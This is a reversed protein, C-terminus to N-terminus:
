AVVEVKLGLEDMAIPEEKGYNPLSVCFGGTLEIYGGYAPSMEKVKGEAESFRVLDGTREGWQGPTEDYVGHKTITAPADKIVRAAVRTGRWRETLMKRRKAANGSEVVRFPTCGTGDEEHQSRVAIVLDTLIDSDPSLAEAKAVTKM